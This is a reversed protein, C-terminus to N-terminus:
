GEMIELIEGANDEDEEPLLEKTQDLGQGQGDQFMRLEEYTRAMVRDLLDQNQKELREVQGSLIEVKGKESDLANELRKLIRLIEAKYRM